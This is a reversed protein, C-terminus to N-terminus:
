NQGTMAPLLVRYIQMAAPGVLILMLTPFIMFILPFLLKLSIKAAAM